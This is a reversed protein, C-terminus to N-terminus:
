NLFREDECVVTSYSYLFSGVDAACRFCTDSLYPKFKHIKEPTLYLQHFFIFLHKKTTTKKILKSFTLSFINQVTNKV